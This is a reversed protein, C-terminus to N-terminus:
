DYLTEIEEAVPRESGSDSGDTFLVLPQSTAGFVDMERGKTSYWTDVPSVLGAGELRKVHYSVNQVTSDIRDAVESM